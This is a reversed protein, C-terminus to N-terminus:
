IPHHRPTTRVTRWRLETFAEVGARGGFRGYGSSKVGGFPMQAEDHVPRVGRVAQLTAM